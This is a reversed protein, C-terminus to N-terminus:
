EGAPDPDEEGFMSLQPGRALRKREAAEAQQISEAPTSLDEPMTGGIDAIVQRVRRGIDEHAQNAAAKDAIGERRIKAEAQTSRFANAALEESGMHDLIPQGSRLGKRQAIDRAREGAYLGMYGHDQFIAFDQRTIVGANRATSALQTNHAALDKRLRLRKQRETPVPLADMEEARRTQVAFYTQGLAVIQKSPDANQVVLYCAYRSLHWDALKRQAGSGLTVMKSAEAFHNSVTQGSQLCAIQAKEIASVFNRWQTYGLLASLDRAAWYEGGDETTHRIQEFPSAGPTPIDTM